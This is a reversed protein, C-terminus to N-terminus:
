TKSAYIKVKESRLARIVFILPVAYVFASILPGWSSYTSVWITSFIILLVVILYSSLELAKRMSSSGRLLGFGGYAIFGAFAMQLLGPWADAVGKGELVSVAVYGVASMFSLGGIVVFFWGVVSVSAPRENPM